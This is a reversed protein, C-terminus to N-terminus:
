LLTNWDVKGSTAFSISDLLNAESQSMFMLGVLACGGIVIGKWKM